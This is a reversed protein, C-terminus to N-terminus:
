WRATADSDDQFFQLTYEPRQLPDYRLIQGLASSFTEKLSPSLTPLEDLMKLAASLANSSTNAPPSQGRFCCVSWVVLGLSYNDAKKYGSTTVSTPPTGPTTLSIEPAQWGRSLATIYIRSGSQSKAEPEAYGFDSLKAILPVDESDNLFVLVNEPKLDAHVIGNEHIADLGAAMDLCLHQRVDWSNGLPGNLYATLDGETALEMVLLPMSNFGGEHAWGLLHVINRHSRLAPDRLVLVELFMNHVQRKTDDGTLDLIQNSELVIKSRKVAAPTTEWPTAKQTAVTTRYVTFQGGEGIFHRSELYTTIELPGDVSLSKLVQIFERATKLQQFQSQALTGLTLAAFDPDPKMNADTATQAWDDFVGISEM